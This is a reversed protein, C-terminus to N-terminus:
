HGERRRRLDTDFSDRAQHWRELTSTLTSCLRTLSWGRWHKGDLARVVADVRRDDVQAPEVEELPGIETGPVDHLFDLVVYRDVAAVARRALMRVTLERWAYPALAAAM